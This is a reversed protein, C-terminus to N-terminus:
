NVEIVVVGASFVDAKPSTAEDAEQIEPAMYVPSGAITGAALTM